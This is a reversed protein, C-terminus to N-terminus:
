YTKLLDTLQHKDSSHSNVFLNDYQM